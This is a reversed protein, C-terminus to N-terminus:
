ESENVLEIYKTQKEVNLTVFWRFFYERFIQFKEKPYDSLDGPYFQKTFDILNMKNNFKGVAKLFDIQSDM